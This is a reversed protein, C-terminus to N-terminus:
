PNETKTAWDRPLGAVIAPAELTQLSSRWLAEAVDAAVVNRDITWGRPAENQPMRLTLQVSGPADAFNRVGTVLILTQDEIGFDSIREVLRTLEEDLSAAEAPRNGDAYDILLFFPAPTRTTRWWLLWQLAVSTLDKPTRLDDTLGLWKMPKGGSALLLQGMATHKAYSATFGALGPALDIEGAMGPFRRKPDRLIAATAYGREYLQGMVGRGDDLTLLDRSPHKEDAQIWPYEIGQATLLSLSEPSTTGGVIGWDVVLFNTPGEGVPPWDDDALIWPLVWPATALAIALALASFLNRSWARPGSSSQKRLKTVAAGSALALAIVGAAVGGVVWPNYNRTAGFEGLALVVATVTWVAPGSVAIGSEELQHATHAALYAAAAVVAFGTAVLLADHSPTLIASLGVGLLPLGILGGVLGGVLHSHSPRFGAARLSAGVIGAGIGLVLAPGLAILLALPTPAIPGTLDVLIIEM